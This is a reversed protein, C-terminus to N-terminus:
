AADWDTVDRGNDYATRWEDAFTPIREDKPDHNPWQSLLLRGNMRLQDRVPIGDFAHRANTRTMDVLRDRKPVHENFGRIVMDNVRLVHRMVKPFARLRYTRSPVVHNYVTFASSRHEIEEVFHWLFLSAVRSDGGGFLADRHELITGFLPTFTAEIDACFALHFELSSSAFLDDYAAHMEDLTSRLGPYQAILANLHLQHARAHQAEQRLFADAEAAVAPDTIHPIAARMASVMYKEFPPATISVVNCFLGFHPHNPNWQFPTTDDFRFPIRRIQLDTM